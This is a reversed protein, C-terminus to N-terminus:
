ALRARLLLQYSMSVRLLCRYLSVTNCVPTANFLVASARILEPIKCLAQWVPTYREAAAIARSRVAQLPHRKSPQLLQTSAFNRHLSLQRCGAAQQGLMAEM